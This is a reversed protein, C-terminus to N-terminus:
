ARDPAHNDRKRALGCLLGATLLLPYGPAGVADPAPAVPTNWVVAQRSGDSFFRHHAILERASVIYSASHPTYFITADRTCYGVVPLLMRLFLAVGLVFWINLHAIKISSRSM